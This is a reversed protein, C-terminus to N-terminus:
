PMGLYASGFFINPMKRCYGKDRAKGMNRPKSSLKKMGCLLCVSTLRSSMSATGPSSIMATDGSLPTLITM